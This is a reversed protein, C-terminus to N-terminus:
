SPTGENNGLVLTKISNSVVPSASSLKIIDQTSGPKDIIFVDASKKNKKKPTPTIMLIMKKKKKELFM